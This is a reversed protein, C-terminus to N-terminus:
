RYSTTIRKPERRLRFLPILVAGAVFGGIHAWWAVGGTSATQGLTALGSLFQMLFWLGLMIFAPVQFVPFFLFLPLVVLVVARPYMVIYGGLVGAIAGSAGLSPLTSTPDLVVQPLAALTGCLFYFVLYRRAGMADEVADGFIWLFLMNGILHGWGGHLFMATFITFVAPPADPSSPVLGTLVAPVFAWRQIFDQIHAGQALEISFALVNAIILLWNAVAAGRMPVNDGVPIM